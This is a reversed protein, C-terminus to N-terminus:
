HQWIPWANSEVIDGQQYTYIAQMSETQLQSDTGFFNAVIPVADTGRGIQHFQPSGIWIPVPSTLRIELQPTSLQAAWRAVDAVLLKQLSLLITMSVGTFKGAPTPVQIAVAPTLRAADWIGAPLQIAMAVSVASTFTARIAAPLMAHDLSAVAPMSATYVAPSPALTSGLIPTAAAMNAVSAPTGIGTLIGPASARMTVVPASVALAPSSSLVPTVSSATMVVPLAFVTNAPATGASMATFLGFPVVVYVSTSLAGSTATFTAAPVALAQGSGAVFSPANSRFTSMAATLSLVSSLAPAISSFTAVVVNPFFTKILLPTVTTATWIGVASPLVTSLSPSVGQATFLIASPFVFAGQWVLPAVSSATFLMASPLLTISPIPTAIAATWTMSTPAVINGTGPSTVAASFVGPTSIIQRGLGPGVGTATWTAAGPLVLPSLIAIPAVASCFFIAPPSAVLATGSVVPAVSQASIISPPSVVTKPISVVPAVSQANVTAPPAVVTDSVQVVPAVSRMTQTAPPAVVTTSVATAGGGFNDVLTDFTQSIGLRLGIYCSTRLLTADTTLGFASTWAGSHSQRYMCYMDLSNSGSGSGPTPELYMWMQGGGSVNIGDSNHLVTDVGGQSRILRLRGNIADSVFRYNYGTAYMMGILNVLYAASVIVDCYAEVPGANFDLIAASYYSGSTGGNSAVQNSLIRLAAEGTM